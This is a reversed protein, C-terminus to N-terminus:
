QPVVVDSFFEKYLERLVKNEDEQHIGFVLSVESSGQNIMEINAGTRAIATAARAALGNTKRMGEGVLVVMSYNKTHLRVDDAHLEDKVRQVIRQEKDKTLFVSRIIVSLNDIGSPSHEYPIEEDELIELLRRGFGIERNM